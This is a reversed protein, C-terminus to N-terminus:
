KELGDEVTLKSDSTGIQSNKIESNSIDFRQEIISIPRHSERKEDAKKVAEEHVIKFDNGCKINQVISQIIHFIENYHLDRLEVVQADDLSKGWLVLCPLSDEAIELSAFKDKIDYGSASLEPISYYIDLYDKSLANLDHWSENIFTEFANDQTLPLFFCKVIKPDSYRCFLEAISKYQKADRGFVNMSDFRKIKDFFSHPNKKKFANLLDSLLSKDVIGKSEISFEKALEEFVSMPMKSIDDANLEQKLLWELFEIELQLATPAGVLHHMLCPGEDTTFKDSIAEDRLSKEIKKVLKKSGYRDSLYFRISETLVYPEINLNRQIIYEKAYPMIDELARKNHKDRKVCERVYDINLHSSENKKIWDFFEIITYDPLINM